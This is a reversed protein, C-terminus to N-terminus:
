RAFRRRIGALGVLGMGLLALTMGGDPTPANVSVNTFVFTTDNYDFDSGPFPLDEFGVYTGTPIGPFIPSTATYPTSYVHNHGVSGNTDYPGNLSPDSYVYGNTNQVYIVFTLIDGASVNGLDLEEGVTSTQNNLGFPVGTLVGNDEMGLTETYAASSGAFYADVQGTGTATFTYTVPNPTGIPAYPIPDAHAVRSTSTLALIILGLNVATAGRISPLPNLRM